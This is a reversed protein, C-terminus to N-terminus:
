FRKSVTLQWERPAAPQGDTQPYGLGQYDFLNVYYFKNFLNTVGLSVNFDYRDNEYTVRGNFLAKGSMIDNYKTSTGSVVQSSEYTMDIRPTISGGIDSSEIEYAIGASATWFPNGQRRNVTRAEIDPAKLKSWGLSGSLTLGDIPNATLEAEVGRITAPQNRYYTRGLCVIGTGAPVRDTSCQTSGAPGGPLPILQQDGVQPQGQDNLLAEAGGIGSPRNNFDTYFAALNVRLRRDFLDLKGGLEYAIAENGDFQEIQTYQLPRPNFGPLTYGTSASGYVLIDNNLQYNLGAKWSFKKQKPVVTFVIDSTTVAPSLDSVNSFDVIKKDDAYRAGIAIGLREGFPRITANAFVAKSTPTYFTHLSRQLGSSAQILAAKQEGKAKFYFLGGVWDILDSQGSLRLEAHNYSQVLNNIVHEVALPMGDTDFTHTESTKRHAAVLALDINGGLDWNLKGAVGWNTFDNHDPIVYGGRTCEGTIPSRNGNYYTNGPIVTCAPIRDTYTVYTSYPDGTQFRSDIELGFYAAQSRMNANARTPDIDVITDAANDSQDRLYDGTLTLRIDSTPEWAVSGRVGRVDTGGFHGIVCDGANNAFRGQLPGTVPFDGALEPTGRRNMECTFDLQKQYGTQKKSVGSVLIAASDGLPLNFGARLDIRNFSGVTIDGYGSVEGLKPQTAVINIAGALTNRGFLTGQPGRLVEIHSVDLLDFNAGLLVPYYVDDLYFAVPNEAGLGTDGSGIGRIFASLGPGFAGQVRRFQANPVVSTLDGMNTIGRAELAESTIATIAIPTDQLNTPQRTATVVIEEIGSIREAGGQDQALAPFGGAACALLVGRTLLRSRFTLPHSVAM